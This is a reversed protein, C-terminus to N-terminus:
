RHASDVVLVEVGLVLVLQALRVEATAIEATLERSKWPPLGLGQNDDIKSQSRGKKFWGNQPVGM